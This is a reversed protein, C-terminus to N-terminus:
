ARLRAGCTEAARRVAATVAADIREDTLTAQDDRLELRVALSREGPNWGPAAAGPKYIDFLTASRILGDPDARLAAMLPDHAVGEGVVLALDRLAAQQRPVPSFVPLHLALVAQLDLEFLVPALPLEYAQRWNPHLEGLHGIVKGDVAVSASRGPHLAPHEATTFVVQRPALLREIDGKIDYFDVAQEKVGWQLGSASGFALGAVRMPQTLGAVSLPGDAANESRSFVRGIEFIRVRNAKRALNNRLAQVLSGILSSRMVALPAAIPNLVRIPDANGALETEWRTEVFSYNITEQYDLAALARRVAHASRRNEPRVHAVTPAVPATAPLKDYGIVRVVEEILDEEIKLDFRWSPPLVTLTGDGASFPLGLRTFVEACQAQTVPMGIVRSARAV